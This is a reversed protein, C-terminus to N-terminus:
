PMGLIGSAPPCQYGCMGRQARRPTCFLGFLQLGVTFLIKQGQLMATATSLWHQQRHQHQRQEKHPASPPSSFGDCLRDIIGLM